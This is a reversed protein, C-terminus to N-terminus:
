LTIWPNGFLEIAGGIFLWLFAGWALSVAATIGAERVTFRNPRRRNGRWEGSEATRSHVTRVDVTRSERSPRVAEPAATLTLVARERLQTM